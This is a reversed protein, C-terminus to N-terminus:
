NADFGVARVQAKRNCPADPDVRVAPTVHGGPFDERPRHLVRRAAPEVRAERHTAVAASELPDGQFKAAPVHDVCRGRLTFVVEQRHNVNIGARPPQALDAQTEIRADVSEGPTNKEVFLDPARDVESEALAIRFGATYVSRGQVPVDDDVRAR